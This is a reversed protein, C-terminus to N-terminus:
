EATKHEIRLFPLEREVPVVRLGLAEVAPMATEPRWHDMSLVFRYHGNLGSENMVIGGELYKQLVQTLDDMTGARFDYGFGGPTSATGWGSNQSEVESLGMPLENGPNKLIWVDHLESRERYVLGFVESFAERILELNTRGEPAEVEVHYRRDSPFDADVVVWGDFEVWDYLLDTMSANKASATRWEGTDWTITHGVTPDLEVQIISVGEVESLEANFPLDLIREPVQM